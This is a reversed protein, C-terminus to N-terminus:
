SDGGDFQSEEVVVVQGEMTHHGDGCYEHCVIGHEGPEDFTVTFEAIQGPIVMSNVNTGALNFGHTVDPSTVHFTVPEGAPVEIAESTGPQFLYQRAVVYVEVGDDTDYVGPERFNDVQDYNGDAIVSPEVTGGSDDVMAVGPGVAGYVITGIFAVILVLSAGFWLREFRHVHM